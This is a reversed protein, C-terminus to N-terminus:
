VSQQKNMVNPLHKRVNKTKHTLTHTRESQGQRCLHPVCHRRPKMWDRQHANVCECEGWLRWTIGATVSFRVSLHYKINIFRRSIEFSISQDTEINKQVASYGCWEAQSHIDAKQLASQKRSLSSWIWACTNTSMWTVCLSSESLFADTLLTDSGQDQTLCSHANLQFQLSNCVASMRDLDGFWKMNSIAKHWGRFILCFSSLSRFLWFNSWWILFRIHSTM